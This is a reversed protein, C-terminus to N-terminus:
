IFDARQFTQWADWLQRCQACDIKAGPPLAAPEQGVSSDNGDLGCLTAYDGIGKAHVEVRGDTRVAINNVRVGHPTRQREDGQCPAV